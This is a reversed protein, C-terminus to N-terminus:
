SGGGSDDPPPEGQKKAMSESIHVAVFGAVMVALYVGSAIATRNAFAAILFAVGAYAGFFALATLTVDLLTGSEDIVYSFFGQDALAARGLYLTLQPILLFGVVVGCQEMQEAQEAILGELRSFASAAESLPVIGHVPAWREGQPGIATTMPFFSDGYLVKPLTNEVETGHRLCIKRVADLMEDVDHQIQLSLGLRPQPNLAVGQQHRAHREQELCGSGM